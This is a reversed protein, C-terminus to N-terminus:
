APPVVCVLLCCDNRDCKCQMISYSTQRRVKDYTMVTKYGDWGSPFSAEGANLIRFTLPVGPIYVVYM